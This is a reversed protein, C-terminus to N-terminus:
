KSNEQALPLRVTVETGEGPTSSLALHGEYQVLIGYSIWLGLGTGKGPPKTTFFPEMAEELTKEDMGEGSDRIAVVCGPGEKRSSIFLTGGEPMAELANKLINVFVQELKGFVGMVEIPDELSEKLTVGELGVGVSFIASELVENLDVISLGMKEHGVQIQAEKVIQAARHVNREVVELYHSPKASHAHPAELALKLEQLNISASTLPNNVEHALGIAMRGLSFMWRSARLRNELEEQETTDHITGIMFTHEGRSDQELRAIAVIHRQRGKFPNLRFNEQFPTSEKIAQKIANEVREQDGPHIRSIFMQYTFPYCDPELGFIRYAEKSLLADNTKLNWEWDGIHALSQAKDKREENELLRKEWALQETLNTILAFSGLFLGDGSFLPQPSILTSIESNSRDVFVIKYQRNGGLKRWAFQEKFWARSQPTLFDTIPRGTIEELPRDLMEIFSTNCFTFLGAEDLSIMGQSMTEVLLRYRLESEALSRAAQRRHLYWSGFVAGFALLGIALIINRSRNSGESIERQPDWVFTDPLRTSAVVGAAALKDYLRQWRQLDNYGLPITPYHTLAMVAPIQLRNYHVRESLTFPAPLERAIRDSIKDHHIHAYRWGKFSAALFRKVLEPHQQTIKESTFLTDGYFDAGFHAPKMQAPEQGTKWTIWDSNISSYATADVQGKQLAEMGDQVLIAAPFDETPDLGAGHLMVKIEAEGVGDRQFLGLRMRTLDAPELLDSEPQSLLVLASEQFIPALSILPLGKDYALLLDTAAIGFEARDEAVEQPANLIKGDEIGPRITVDLGADQYYGQWLAAYYGAFQFQHHWRLQLTVQQNAQLNIPTLVWVFALISLLRYATMPANDIRGAKM